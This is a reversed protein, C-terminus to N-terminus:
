KAVVLAAGVVKLAVVTAHSCDGEREYKGVHVTIRTSDHLVTTSPLLTEICARPWGVDGFTFQMQRATKTDLFRAQEVKNHSILIVVPLVTSETVVGGIIDRVGDGNVDVLESIVPLDEVYLDGTAHVSGSVQVVPVRPLGSSWAIRVTDRVGDCDLDTVIPGTDGAWNMPEPRTVDCNHRSQAAANSPAGKNCSTSAALLTSLLAVKRM